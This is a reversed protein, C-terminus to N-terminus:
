PSDPKSEDEICKSQEDPPKLQCMQIKTFKEIAANACSDQEGPPRTECAMIKLKEDIEKIQIMSSIMQRHSKATREKISAM